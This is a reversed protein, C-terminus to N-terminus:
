QNSTGEWTYEATLGDVNYVTIHINNKGEELPQKFEVETRGLPAGTGQPDSSYLTENLTYEIKQIGQEDSVAIVLDTSDQTVGIKPKKSGRYVQEVERVNGAKDTAKVTLTNEGKLIEVSEEIQKQDDSTVDVETEDENNWYYTIFELATEDKAIIKIKQGEVVLEIEPKNVDGAEGIYDESYTVTKGISDTVKITLKNEGVPIDITKQIEQKGEGAIVTEQNEQWKYVIKEIPKDHTVLINLKKGEQSTEVLPDSTNEDKKNLTNFLVKGIFFGGIVLACILILIIITTKGELSKKEKKKTETYLIQNM